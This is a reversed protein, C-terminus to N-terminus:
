ARTWIERAAAAIQERDTVDIIVPRILPHPPADATDRVGALVHHGRGALRLATARGIGSSTGTVLYRM